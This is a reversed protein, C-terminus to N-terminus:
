LVYSNLYNNLREVEKKNKQLVIKDDGYPVTIRHKELTLLEKAKSIPIKFYIDKEFNQSIIKQGSDIWTGRYKKRKKADSSSGIMSGIFAGLLNFLILGVILGTTASKYKPLEIFYVHKNDIMVDFYPLSAIAFVKKRTWDESYFQVQNLNNNTHNNIKTGCKGCFGAGDKLEKGCNKCFM